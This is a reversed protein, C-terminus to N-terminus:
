PLAKAKDGSSFLTTFSTAAYSAKVINVQDEHVEFLMANRVRAGALTRASARLEIWVVDGTRKQSVFALRILAGGTALTVTAGVYRAADADSVVHDARAATHAFRSVATSFDDAFTRIRVTLTGDGALSFETLTSHIAHAQVTLPAGILLLMGLAVRGVM